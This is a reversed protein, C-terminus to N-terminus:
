LEQRMYVESLCVQLGHLCNICSVESIFITRVILVKILEVKITQVRVGVLPIFDEVCLQRGLLIV